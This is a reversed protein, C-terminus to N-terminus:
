YLRGDRRRLVLLRKRAAPPSVGAPPAALPCGEGLRVLEAADLWEFKIYEHSARFSALRRVTKGSGTARMM